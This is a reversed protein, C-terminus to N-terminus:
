ETPNGYNIETWGDLVRAHPLFFNFDEIVMIVGLLLEESIAKVKEVIEEWSTTVEKQFTEKSCIQYESNAKLCM